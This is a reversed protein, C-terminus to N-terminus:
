RLADAAARGIERYATVWKGRTDADVPGGDVGVAEDLYLKIAERVHPQRTGISENQMRLERARKRLEAFASGTKLLPEAQQGDWYICDAVETCLCAVAAADTGAHPGIFKGRLTFESPNHPHPLVGAPILLSALALAVLVAATIHRSNM